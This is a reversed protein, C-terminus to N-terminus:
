SQNKFSIKVTTVRAIPNWPPSTVGKNEIPAVRPNISAGIKWKGISNHTAKPYVPTKAEAVFVSKAGIIIPKLLRQHADFSLM